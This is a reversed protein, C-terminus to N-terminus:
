TLKTDAASNPLRQLAAARLRAWRAALHLDPSTSDAPQARRADAELCHEARSARGFRTPSDGITPRSKRLARGSHRAQPAVTDTRRFLLRTGVQSRGTASAPVSRCAFCARWLPSASCRPNLRHPSLGAGPANQGSPRKTRPCNWVSGLSSCCPVALSLRQTIGQGSLPVYGSAVLPACRFQHPIACSLDTLGSPAVAPADTAGEPSPM